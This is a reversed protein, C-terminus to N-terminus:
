DEVLYIRLVKTGSNWTTDDIEYEGGDIQIKAGILDYSSDNYSYDSGSELDIDDFDRWTGDVDIEVGDMGDQYITGDVYFLYEDPEIGNDDNGNVSDIGEETEIIMIDMNKDWDIKEINYDEGEYRCEIGYNRVDYQKSGLRIIYKKVVLVDDVEYEEDDYIISVDDQDVYWDDLEVFEQDSEQCYIDLKGRNDIKVEELDYVDYDVLLTVKSPPYQKTNVVIQNSSDITVSSLSYMKHDIIFSIKEVEDLDLETSDVEISDIDSLRLDDVELPSTEDLNLEIGDDEIDIGEIIFFEEDLKIVVEDSGLKYRAGDVRVEDYDIIEMDSLLYKKGENGAYLDTFEANYRSGSEEIYALKTYSTTVELEKGSVEMESVGYFANNVKIELDSPTLSYRTSYNLLLGESYKSLTNVRNTTSGDKFSLQNEGIIYEVGDIKITELNDTAPDIVIGALGPALPTSSSGGKKDLYRCLMVAAQGRTINDFPRFTNDEYGTILGDAVAAKIFGKYMSKEIDAKDEFNLVTNQAKGGLARVLAAAAESRKIPEDPKLGGPYESPVLISRVVAENIYGKAWHNATDSFSVTTTDTPSAGLCSVLVLVFEARSMTKDPRFTNDPYGSIFGGAALREIYSKAWHSQTDSFNQAAAAAPGTAFTGITMGIVLSLILLRKM